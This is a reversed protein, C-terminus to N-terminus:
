KSLYDMVEQLAHSCVPDFDTLSLSFMRCDLAPRYFGFQEYGAGEFAGVKHAYKGEKLIANQRKIYPERKEYYDAALRDLKGREVAADDYEKKGWPTPLPTEKEMFSKWKINNKDLLATVNREWPEVDKKFFEDYGVSSSYYEDGLGAFSHGFEHVYVYDMQWAMEKHDSITFTTTYLNYIGGGGYRKDNVLINIYDYPVLGAADRVARNNETLIYRPSKFTYYTCGLANNKWINKDPISIGSQESIVEVMWVNFDKKRQKFPPTEFMVDNYHKADKRFKEMDEKAYGDGLIVLDVKEAAPGNVMLPTVKYNPRNPNLNIRWGEAPNIQTRWIEKFAMKADRRCVVLDVKHQPMPLLWSEHFTHNNAKADPTTQWENFISSYGRAYIQKQSKSDYLQVQYEGLNLTTILNKQSGAWPGAVFIQDIAFQESKNTGTHFFDVRMTKDVFYDSFNQAFLATSIFLLSLTTKLLRM